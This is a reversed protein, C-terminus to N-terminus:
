TKNNEVGKWCLAGKILAIQDEQCLNSFVALRKCMEILRRYSREMMMVIRNATINESSTDLYGNALLERLETENVRLASSAEELESIM